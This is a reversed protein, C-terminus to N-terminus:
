PSTLVFGVALAGAAVALLLLPVDWAVWWRMRLLRGAGIAGVAVPLGCLLLPLGISFAAPVSLVLLAAASCGLLWARRAPLATFAGVGALLAATAIWVAIFPVRGGPPTAGQQVILRLYLADLALAGIAGGLAPLSAV